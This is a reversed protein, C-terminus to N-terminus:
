AGVTLSGERGLKGNGVPVLRLSSARGASFYWASSRTRRMTSVAASAPRVSIRSQAIILHGGFEVAGGGHGTPAEGPLLGWLGPGGRTGHTIGRIAAYSVASAIIM